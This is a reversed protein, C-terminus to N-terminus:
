INHQHIKFNGAEDQFRIYLLRKGRAWSLRFRYTEVRSDNLGDEPALPLWLEGDLSYTVTAVPSTDDKIQMVLAGDAVQLSELTPATSDITFIQSVYSAALATDGPNSLADDVKLRLQYEGDAVMRPDIWCEKKALHDFLPIWDSGDARRLEVAAQLLDKNPDDAQWSVRLHGRRTNGNKDKEKRNDQKIQAINIGHIRPKLNNQLYYATLRAFLPSRALNASNLSVKFQVYRYGQVELRANEPDSFPPTWSIWTKDPIRSNGMRAFVAAVGGGEDNGMRWTLRGFRSPVGLDFVKSLYEGKGATADEIRWIGATNNTVALLGGSTEALSYLQAAPAEMVLAYDGDPSVQYLRGADGTALYLNGSKSHFCIDYITENRSQWIKEVGGNNNLRYLASKELPHENREGKKDVDVPDEGKKVSDDRSKPRAMRTAAFYINGRSDECIGRVEEFPSDFMVRVKRDSIRFLIGRGASGAYVDGDRAAYLSTIHTDDADFLKVPEAKASIRYVAGHNGVACYVRGKNDATLAWIFKERPTFVKEPEKKGKLHYVSGNPSTGVYVEDGSLAVLGYVDLHESNFIEKAKGGAAPIRYARAGHGTGLLIDGDPATTVALFYEQDPGELRQIRPGIFLRGRSDVATGNLTGSQFDSFDGIVIKKTQGAHTSMVCVASVLALIAIRKQM